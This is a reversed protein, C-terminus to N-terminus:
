RDGGNDRRKLAGSDHPRDLGPRQGPSLQPRGTPAESVYCPNELGHKLPCSLRAQSVVSPLGREEKELVIPLKAKM